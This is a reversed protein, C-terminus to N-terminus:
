DPEPFLLDKEVLKKLDFRQSHNVTVALRFLQEDFKPRIFRTECDFFCANFGEDPAIAGLRPLPGDPTYTLDEPKTWPVFDRAEVLAITPGRDDKTIDSLAVQRGPDFPTGPGVFVKMCTDTSKETTSGLKFWYPMEKLLERNSPSDWPEDLKFRRYLHRNLGLYPLIAVRWSLLPKGQRDVIACPPLEGKSLEYSWIAWAVMFMNRRLGDFKILFKGQSMLKAADEKSGRFRELELVDPRGPLVERAGFDSRRAISITLQSANLSYTGVRPYYCGGGFRGVYELELQNDNDRKRIPYYDMLGHRDFTVLHEKNIVAYLARKLPKDSDGYLTVRKKVVWVGDIGEPPDDSQSLALSIGFVVAGLALVSNQM